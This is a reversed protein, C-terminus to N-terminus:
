EGDRNRWRHLFRNVTPFHTKRWARFEQGNGNALLAEFEDRRAKAQNRVVDPELGLSNMLFAALEDEMLFHEATSYIESELTETVFDWVAHLIVSAALQRYGESCVYLESTKVDPWAQISYIWDTATTM